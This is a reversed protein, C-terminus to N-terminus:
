EDRALAGMAITSALEQIAEVTDYKGSYMPVDDVQGTFTSSNENLWDFYDSQQIYSLEVSYGLATPDVEWSAASSFQLKGNKDPKFIGYSQVKGGTPLRGLVKDIYGELKDPDADPCTLGIDALQKQLAEATVPTPTSSLLSISIKKAKIPM